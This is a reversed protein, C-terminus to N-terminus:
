LSKAASEGTLDLFIKWGMTACKQRMPYDRLTLLAPIDGPLEGAEGGGHPDLAALFDEAIRRAEDVPRGELEACLIDASAICISCGRGIFRAAAVRRQRTGGHGEGAGEPEDDGELRLRLSLEDGCSRNVMNGELFPEDLEGERSREKYHSVIVAKYDM